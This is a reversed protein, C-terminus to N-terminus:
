ESQLAEIEQELARRRGAQQSNGKKIADLFLPLWLFPASPPTLSSRVCINDSLRSRPNDRLVGKSPEHWSPFFFFFFFFFFFTGAERTAWKRRRAAKVVHVAIIRRWARANSDQKVATTAETDVTARAITGTRQKADGRKVARRGRQRAAIRSADFLTDGGGTQGQRGKLEILLRPEVPTQTNSIEHNEDNCYDAHM